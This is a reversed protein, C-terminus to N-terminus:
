VTASKQSLSKETQKTQALSKTSGLLGHIIATRIIKSKVGEIMPMNVRAKIAWCNLLEDIAPSLRFTVTKDLNELEEAYSICELVFHEDQCTLFQELSDSIWKSKGRLGYGQAVIKKNMEIELTSPIKFSKSSIKDSM